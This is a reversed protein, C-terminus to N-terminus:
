DPVQVLKGAKEDRLLVRKEEDSKSPDEMFAAYDSMKMRRQSGTTATPSIPPTGGLGVKPAERATKDKQLEANEKRLRELENPDTLAGRASSEATEVTINGRNALWIERAKERVKVDQIAAFKPEADAIKVQADREQKRRSWYDVAARYAPDNRHEDSRNLAALANAYEADIPDQPGATTPPANRAREDAERRIRNAEEVKEQWSAQKARENKLEEELRTARQADTEQQTTGGADPAPATTTGAQTGAATGDAVTAAGGKPDVTM